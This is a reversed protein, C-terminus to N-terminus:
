ALIRRLLIGGVHRSGRTIPEAAVLDDSREARPAHALDMARAVDAQLAVDGDFEPRHRERSIAIAHLPELALPAGARPPSSDWYRTSRRRRLPRRCSRGPERARPRRSAQREVLTEREMPGPEHELRTLMGKRSARSRSAMQNWSTAVPLPRTAARNSCGNVFANRALQTSSPRANMTFRMCLMECM